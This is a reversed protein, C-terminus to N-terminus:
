GMESLVSRVQQDTAGGKALLAELRHQADQMKNSLADLEKRNDFYRRKLEAIQDDALGIDKANILATFYFDGHVGFVGNAAAM